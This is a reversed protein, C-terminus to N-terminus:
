ADVLPRRRIWFGAMVLVFLALVTALWEGAPMGSLQGLLAAVGCILMMTYAFLATGLHGFGSRVLHQYCHQRHARWFAEGRLARRLLTYTADMWFPAFPLVAIWLSVGADRLLLLCFAGALFGLPISGSDGLFLRAPPFNFLLFGLCIASISLALWALGDAGGWWALVALFAFGILGMGGALGDSGDMFNYLNTMWCLGLTVLLGAALLGALPWQLPALVFAAMIACLLLHMPLRWVVPLGFRDDVLSVMFLLGALVMAAWLEMGLVQPGHDPPLGFASFLVLLMVATMPVGAARAVPVQHLSRHNPHDVLGLRVALFRWAWCLLVSTLAVVALYVGWELMNM